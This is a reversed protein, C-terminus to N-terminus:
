GEDVSIDSSGGSGLVADEGAGVVVYEGVM